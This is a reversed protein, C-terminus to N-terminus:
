KNFYRKSNEIYESLIWEVQYGTINDLESNFIILIWARNVGYYHNWSKTMDM